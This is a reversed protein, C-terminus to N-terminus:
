NRRRDDKNEKFYDEIAFFLKSIDEDDMKLRNEQIIKYLCNKVNATNWLDVDSVDSMSWVIAEVLKTEDVKIM